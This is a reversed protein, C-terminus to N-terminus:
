NASNACHCPSLTGVAQYRNSPGLLLYWEGLHHFVKVLKISSSSGNGFFGAVAIFFLSRSAELIIKKVPSTPSICRVHPLHDYGVVSSLPERIPQRSM